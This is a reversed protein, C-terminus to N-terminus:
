KPLRVKDSVDPMLPTSTPLGTRQKSSAEAERQRNALGREFAWRTKPYDHELKSDIWAIALDLTADQSASAVLAGLSAAVGASM